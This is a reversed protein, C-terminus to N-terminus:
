KLTDAVTLKIQKTTEMEKSERKKDSTKPNIVAKYIEKSISLTMMWKQMVNNVNKKIANGLSENNMICALHYVANLKCDSRALWEKLVMVPFLEIKRNKRKGLLIDMLPAENM